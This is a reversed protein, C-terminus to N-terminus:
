PYLISCIGLITFIGGLLLSVINGFADWCTVRGSGRLPIKKVIRLVATLVFFVGLILLGYTNPASGILFTIIFLIFFLLGFVVQFVATNDKNMKMFGGLTM